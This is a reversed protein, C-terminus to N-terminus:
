VFEKVAALKQEYGIRYVPYANPVRLVWYNLVDTRHIWGIHDMHEVVKDAIASDPLNWIPDGRGCFIEAALSTTSNSPVMDTSWNKPEHTRGFVVDKMPFYTWSDKSVQERELAVFVCILERYELDYRSLMERSGFQEPIATLLADLPITSVVQDAKYTKESGDEMQVTVEFGYNKPVMELISTSCHVTGGMELIERNMADPIM